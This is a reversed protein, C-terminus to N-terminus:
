RGGSGLMGMLGQMLSGPNASLREGFEAMSEAIALIKAVDRAIEDVTDQLALLEAHIENTRPSRPREPERTIEIGVPGGNDMAHTM